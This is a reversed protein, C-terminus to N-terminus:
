EVQTQREQHARERATELLEDLEQESVGSEAVQQRVPAFLERMTLMTADQELVARAYEEVAHGQPSGSPCDERGVRASDYYNREYLRRVSGLQETTSRRTSHRHRLVEGDIWCWKVVISFKLEAM